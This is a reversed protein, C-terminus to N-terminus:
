AARAGRDRRGLRSIEETPIEDWAVGADEVRGRLAITGPHCMRPLYFWLPELNADSLRASILVLDTDPLSNAESAVGGVPGGPTLRVAVGSQALQRHAAILSLPEEDAPREEFADFGTYQAVTGDPAHRAVLEMMRSSREVSDVGFEVVRCVHNRKVVRFLQREAPEGGTLADRTYEFLRGFLKM